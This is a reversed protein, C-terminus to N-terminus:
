TNCVYDRLSNFTCLVHILTAVCMQTHAARVRSVVNSTYCIYMYINMM